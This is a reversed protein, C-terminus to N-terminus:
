RAPDSTPSVVLARLLDLSSLIGIVEGGAEVLLHHIRRENMLDAAERVSTEANVAYPSSTMVTQVADDDPWDEVLDTSTVIGVVDNDMMVPLAHIGLTLIIDRARGIRDNPRLAIMDQTMLDAM